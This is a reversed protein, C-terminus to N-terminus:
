LLYIVNYPAVISVWSKQFMLRRGNGSSGGRGVSGVKSRGKQAEILINLVVNNERFTIAYPFLYHVLELTLFPKFPAVKEPWERRIGDLKNRFAEMEKESIEEAHDRYFNEVFDLYDLISTCGIFISFRRFINLHNTILPM